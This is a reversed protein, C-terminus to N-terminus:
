LSQACIIVNALLHDTRGQACPHQPRLGDPDPTLSAANKNTKNKLGTLEAAQASSGVAYYEPLTRQELVAMSEPPKFSAM